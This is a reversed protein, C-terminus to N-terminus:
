SSVDDLNIVYEKEVSDFRYSYEALSETAPGSLIDGDISYRSGHCQCIFNSGDFKNIRCGLHSCRSSLFKLSDRKKVAIIGDLFNVGGELNESVYIKGAGYIKGSRQKTIKGSIYLLPAILSYGFVKLFKRRKIRNM